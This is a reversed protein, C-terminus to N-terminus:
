VVLLRRAGSAECLPSLRPSFFEVMGGWISAGAGVRVGARVVLGVQATLVPAVM